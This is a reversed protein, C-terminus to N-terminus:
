TNGTKFSRSVSKIPNGAQDTVAGTHLILTYRTQAALKKTPTIILKNGTIRTKIAITGQNSVLEIWCKISKIIAENFGLIIVKNRPINVANITPDGSTIHPSAGVIFKTTYTPLPNNALDTVCGTHLILSYAGEGLPNIPTVSLIKDTISLKIPISPGGKKILEVWFNTGPKVTCSFTIKIVKEAAVNVSNKGPDSRVVMLGRSNNWVNYAYNLLPIFENTAKQNGQSNPHDDGDHYPSTGDYNSAYLHEVHDGVVRHHSGTESLVGYFDFVLINKGTYGKLWGNETDVLWNCLERTKTYSEVDTEGPPTILVFLKNQHSAFYSKINNYVTKEDTISNGVESMPFCSKFMIIENEGGPNAIINQYASHLNNKYVYPMKDNNFWSPWDPTDTHDGLNDNPEADWDYDTETVYYNNENLKHGLNGNGDALWNGGCSHHIFVLKVTSSPPTTNLNSAAASASGIFVMLVFLFLSIITIKKIICGGM